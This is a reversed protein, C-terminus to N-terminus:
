EVSKGSIFIPIKNNLEMKNDLKAIYRNRFEPYDPTEDKHYIIGLKCLLLNKSLCKEQLRSSFQRELYKMIMQDDYIPDFDVKRRWRFYEEKDM